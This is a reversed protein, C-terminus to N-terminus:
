EMPENLLSLCTKIGDLYNGLRINENPSHQNNDPNVTPISVAPIALSKIFPAIPISGGAMRIKIPKDGFASIMANELWVGLASSLDTRFAAYSVESTFSILKKHEIREEETPVGNVFHFGHDRIHNKILNLLHEPDSEPVLRIDLEAIAFAPIITRVEPGVWGSSLGRINLSPYQISGQYGEAVRDTESIGIKSKIYDEDDPVQSLVLKDDDSLKVGDYYGPIIVKGDEDKMSALLKAMTLAPNPAYNGYHGSHQALRPGFVKLTATAIGRAGFTLTPRNTIHRPGDLIVLMDAALEEKYREVAAPLNPSGLEEECDMIVKINYGPNIKLSEAIDLATLFMNVPGKADSASRAFIRWDLDTGDELSEWPIEEWQHGKVPKKLTPSYPTEQFWRSPDVPQGDIQLYFLVTKVAGRHNREALLLPLSPTSLRTTRFGRKSFARELWTINPLLQEPFNADNPLSLFSKFESLSKQQHKRIMADWQSVDHQAVGFHHISALLLLFPKLDIKKM